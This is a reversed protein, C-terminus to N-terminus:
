RILIMKRTQAFEGAVLRSFYVGSAAPAENRDRGDWVMTHRGAPMTEEVLRAVLRGAADYIRLSTHGREKLGFAITTGPNFPNPWNQALFVASPVDGPEDGTLQ